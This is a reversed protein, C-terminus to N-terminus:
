LELGKTIFTIGILFFFTNIIKQLAENKKKKKKFFFFHVELRAEITKMESLIKFLIQDSSENNNQNQSLHKDFDKLLLIDHQKDTSVSRQDFFVQIDRVEGKPNVLYAQALNRLKTPDGYFGLWCGLPNTSASVLQCNPGVNFAKVKGGHRVQWIELLERRPAYIALFLLIRDRKQFQREKQLQTKPSEQTAEIEEIHEKSAMVEIWAVQAQRYGKWMRVVKMNAIDILLVRGLDDTTAIMQAQPDLSASLIERSPDDIYEILPLKTAPLQAKSESNINGQSNSANQNSGGWWNKAMSFLKSAVTSVVAVASLLPKTNESGSYGVMPGSGVSMFRTTSTNSM